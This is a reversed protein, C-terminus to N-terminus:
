NVTLPLMETQIFRVCGVQGDLRKKRKRRKKFIKVEKLKDPEDQSFLSRTCATKLVTLM